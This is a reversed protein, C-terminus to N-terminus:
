KRVFWTPFNVDRYAISIQRYREPHKEDNFFDLVAGQVARGTHDVTGDYNITWNQGTQAPGDEQTVYDHGAMIGGQKLLPWWKELDLLVGKYDHLADVYIFDFQKDKYIEACKVTYDRCVEIKEKWKKTNELTIQYKMEQRNNDVNALDHYNDLQKWIDVLVYKRCSPWNRLMQKAFDGHQVGLEVGTEFKESEMLASLDSRRKIPPIAKPTQRTCHCPKRLLIIFCLLIFLGIFIETNFNRKKPLVIM